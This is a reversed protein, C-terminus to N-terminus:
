NMMQEISRLGRTMQERPVKLATGVESFAVFLDETEKPTIKGRSAIGLRAFADTAQLLDLGLRKSEQRVLRMSAAAEEAGGTAALMKVGAAEFGQGLRVLGVSGAVGTGAVGLGLMNHRLDLFRQNLTKSSRAVLRTQNHLGALRRTYESASMGTTKFQHGLAAIEAKLRQVEKKGKGSMPRGEISGFLRDTSM